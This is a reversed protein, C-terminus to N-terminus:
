PLPLRSMAPMASTLVTSRFLLPSATV